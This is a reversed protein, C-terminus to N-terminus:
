RLIQCLQPTYKTVCNASFAVSKILCYIYKLFINNYSYHPGNIRIPVKKQTQSFESSFEGTDKLFYQM